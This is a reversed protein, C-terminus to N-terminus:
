KIDEIEFGRLEAVVSSMGVELNSHVSKCKLSDLNTFLLLRGDNGEAVLKLQTNDSRRIMTIVNPKEKITKTIMKNKMQNVEEIM